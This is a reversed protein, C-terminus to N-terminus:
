GSRGRKSSRGRSKRKRKAEYLGIGREDRAKVLAHYIKLARRTLVDDDPNVDESWKEILDYLIKNTEDTADWMRLSAMILNDLFNELYCGVLGVEQLHKYFMRNQLEHRILLVPIEIDLPVDVKGPRIFRFSHPFNLPITFAKM